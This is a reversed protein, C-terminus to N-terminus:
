PPMTHWITGGPFCSTSTTESVWTWTGHRKGCDNGIILLMSHLFELLLSPGLDIEGHWDGHSGIFRMRWLRLAAKDSCIASVSPSTTKRCAHTLPKLRDDGLSAIAAIAGPAAAFPDLDLVARM